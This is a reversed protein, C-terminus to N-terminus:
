LRHIAAPCFSNFNGLMGLSRSAMECLQEYWLIVFYELTGNQPCKEPLGQERALKDNSPILLGHPGSPSKHRLISILFQLPGCVFISCGVLEFFSDM